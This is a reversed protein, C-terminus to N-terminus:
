LVPMGGMEAPFQQHPGNAFLDFVGGNRIKGTYGQQWALPERM